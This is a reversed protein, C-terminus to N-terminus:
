SVHVPPLAPSSPTRDAAPRRHRPAQRYFVPYVALVTGLYGLYGGPGSGPLDAFAAWHSPPGAALILLAAASLASGARRWRFILALIVGAEALWPGTFEAGRLVSRGAGSWTSASLFDETAQSAGWACALVLVCVTTLRALNRVVRLGDHAGLPVLRIRTPRSRSIVESITSM